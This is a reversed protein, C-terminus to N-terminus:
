RRKILLFFGAFTGMMNAAIDLIDFTRGTPMAYQLIEITIGTIVPIIFYWFKKSFQYSLYLLGTMMFFLLFHVIKDSHSFALFNLWGKGQGKFIKIPILTVLFLLTTYGYFLIRFFMFSKDALSSKTRQLM